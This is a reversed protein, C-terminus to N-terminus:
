QQTAFVCRGTKFNTVLIFQQQLSYQKKECKQICFMNLMISKRVSNFIPLM